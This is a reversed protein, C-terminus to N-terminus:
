AGGLKIFEQWAILRDHAEPGAFRSYQAGRVM